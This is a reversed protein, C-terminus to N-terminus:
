LEELVDELQRRANGVWDDREITEPVIDLARAIKEIEPRDLEALQPYSTIGLENLAKETVPGIGFIRQLDDQRDVPRFLSESHRSGGDAVDEDPLTDDEGPPADSDHVDDMSFVEIALTANADEDYDHEDEDDGDDFLTAGDGRSAAVPDAEGDRPVVPGASGSGAVAPPRRGPEIGERLEAALDDDVEMVEDLLEDPAEGAAGGDLTQSAWGRRTASPAPRATGSTDPPTATEADAAVDALAATDALTDGGTADATAVDHGGPAGAPVKRSEAAGDHHVRSAESAEALSAEALASEAAATALAREYAGTQEQLQAVRRELAANASTLERTQKEHRQMMQRVLLQSKELNDVLAPLRRTEERLADIEVRSRERLDAFDDTLMTVDTQARELQRGRLELADLLEDERSADRSRRLLWGGAGGLLVALALCILIQSLLYIM